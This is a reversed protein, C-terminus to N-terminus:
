RAIKKIDNGVSWFLATPSLAISEAAVNVLRTQSGDANLTDIHPQTCTQLADNGTCLGSFQLFVGNPDAFVAYLSTDVTVNIAQATGGGLPIRNLGPSSFRDVYYLYTSDIALSQASGAAALPTAPGGTLPVSSVETGAVIVFLQKGDTAVEPFTGDALKTTTGDQAVRLLAGTSATNTLDQASFYVFTGDTALASTVGGFAGSYLQKPQAGADLGVVWVGSNGAADTTVYFLANAIAIPGGPNNLGTQLTTVAGGVVPIKRIDNATADYGTGGNTTTWYLNDGAVALGTVVASETVLTTGDGCGALLLVLLLTTRM